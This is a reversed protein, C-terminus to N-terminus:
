GRHEGEGKRFYAVDERVWRFIGYAFILLGLGIFHLGFGLGLTVFFVGAALIVPAFSQQPEHVGHGSEEHM